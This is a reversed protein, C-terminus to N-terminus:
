LGMENSRRAADSEKQALQLENFLKIREPQLANLHQLMEKEPIASVEVLALKINESGKTVVFVQGSISSTKVVVTKGVKQAAYGTNSFQFCSLLLLLKIFKM